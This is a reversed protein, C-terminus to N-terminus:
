VVLSLSSVIRNLIQWTGGKASLKKWNKAIWPWLIEKGNQNSAKRMVPLQMNQSRVMPM